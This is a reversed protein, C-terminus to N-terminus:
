MEDDLRKTTNLLTNHLLHELYVKKQEACKEFWAPCCKKRFFTCSPLFACTKCSEDPEVPKQLMKYLEPDTVGHIIDGWSRHEPLHECHNFLGDPTIVISRGVSDAMCYNLRTAPQKETRPVGIQEMIDNLRLIEKYLQIIAERQQAQYLPTLYVVIMHMDGFEAKLDYLFQEIRSINEEDVNVRLNVKIGAEAFYHISRMVTDYNHKQPNYYNKRLMYDEKAGDLSVQVKKLNWAQKAEEAMEKTLLSANTVMRSKFPIERRKLEACVHRIIHAAALPEGGFWRLTITDQQRTQCIFEVLKDATELTMTKVEYGEEFCYICRANCGTTPFIVYSDLGKKKGSMTKLLFVTQEYLHVDDCDFDVLYCKAALETLGHEVIFDYSQPSEGIQSLAKWEEATLEIIERTMTHYILYRESESYRFLFQSFRYVKNESLKNKRLVKEFSEAGSTIIKM